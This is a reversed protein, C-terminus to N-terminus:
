NANDTKYFGTGNFKIGFTGYVKVMQNNCKTCFELTEAEAFSKQKEVNIDCKTCAYEYTPM